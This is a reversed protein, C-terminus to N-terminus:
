QADEFTQRARANRNFADRHNRLHVPLKPFIDVGNVYEVWELAMKKCTTDVMHMDKLVLNSFLKREAITHVPLLPLKTGMVRCLYQMDRTLRVTEEIEITSLADALDAYHLAITGFAEPTNKFDSANVWNPYLLV